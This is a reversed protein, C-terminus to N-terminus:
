VCLCRLSNFSRGEFPPAQPASRKLNSAIKKNAELRLGKAELM